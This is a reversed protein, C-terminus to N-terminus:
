SALTYFAEGHSLESKGLATLFIIEQHQLVEDSVAAGHCHAAPSPLEETDEECHECYCASFVWGTLLAM